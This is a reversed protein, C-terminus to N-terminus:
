SGEDSCCSGEGPHPSLPSSPIPPLDYSDGEVDDRALTHAEGAEGAELDLTIQIELKM